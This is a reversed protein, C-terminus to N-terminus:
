FRNVSKVSQGVIIGTEHVSPMLFSRVKPIIFIGLVKLVAPQESLFNQRRIIGQVLVCLDDTELLRGFCNVNGIGKVIEPFQDAIFLTEDTIYHILHDTLETLDLCASNKTMQYSFTAKAIILRLVISLGM